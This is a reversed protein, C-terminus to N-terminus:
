FFGAHLVLDLYIVKWHESNISLYFVSSEVSLPGRVCPSELTNVLRSAGLASDM